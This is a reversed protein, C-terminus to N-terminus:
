HIGKPTKREQHLELKALTNQGTSTSALGGYSHVIKCHIYLSLGTILQMNGCTRQRALEQPLVAM